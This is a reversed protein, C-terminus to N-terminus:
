EYLSKWDSRCIQQIAYKTPSYTTIALNHIQHKLHLLPMFQEQYISWDRNKFQDIQVNIIRIAEPIHVGVHDYGKLLFELSSQIPSSM